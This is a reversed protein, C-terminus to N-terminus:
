GRKKHARFESPTMGYRRKFSHVFSSVHRAGCGYAIQKISLFTTKLMDEAHQMRLSCLFQMPSIGTEAKFIQRLRAPSLNVSKALTNISLQSAM